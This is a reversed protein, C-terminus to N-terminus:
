SYTAKWSGSQDGRAYDVYGLLIGKTWYYGKRGLILLLPSAFPLITYFFRVMLPPKSMSLAQYIGGVTRRKYQEEQEAFTTRKTRVYCKECFAAKHGSELIKFLLYSDEAKCKKLPLIEKLVKYRVLLLEGSAAIPIRRRLPDLFSYFTQQPGGTVQVKVFAVSVREDQLLRLVAEFNHIETDADNFAVIDTDPPILELGFNIADFKGKPERYVVNRRDTKQGCVVLYPYGLSDLEAMKADLASTDRSLVLIFVKM